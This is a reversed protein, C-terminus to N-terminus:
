SKNEERALIAVVGYRNRVGYASYIGNLHNKLTSKSISLRARIQRRSYGKKLLALIGRKRPTWQEIDLPNPESLDAESVLGKSVSFFVAQLLSDEGDGARFRNGLAELHKKVTTPSCHSKKAIRKTSLGEMLGGIVVRDIRDLSYRQELVSSPAKDEKYTELCDEVFANLARFVDPLLEKRDAVIAAVRIWSEARFIRRIKDLRDYLTQPTVEFEGAIDKWKFGAVTALLIDKQDSSLARKPGGSSDKVQVLGSKVVWFILPLLNKTSFLEESINRLEVLSSKEISDRVRLEGSALRQLILLRQQSLIKEVPEVGWTGGM